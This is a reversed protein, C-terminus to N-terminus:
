TDPSWRSRSTRGWEKGLRGEESRNGIAQKQKTGQRGERAHRKKIDFATDSACCPGGREPIEAFVVIELPKRQLLQALGRQVNTTGNVAVIYPGCLRQPVM